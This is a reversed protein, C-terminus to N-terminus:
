QVGTSLKQLGKRDLIVVRKGDTEILARQRLDGMAFSVTERTAGILGALERHTLRLNVITGRSDRVGFQQGLQLVTSCLREIATRTVFEELRQQVQRRRGLEVALMGRALGLDQGLHRELADRPIELLVCEEYAEVDAAMRGTAAEGGVLSGRGWFGLSLVRPTGGVSERLVGSRIAVPNGSSGRSWLPVSRALRRPSSATALARITSPDAEQFAACRRLVASKNRIM